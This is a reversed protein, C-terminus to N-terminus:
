RDNTPLIVIFLNENSNLQKAPYERNLHQTFAKENMCVGVWYANKSGYAIVRGPKWFSQEDLYDIANEAARQITQKNFKKSTTFEVSPM